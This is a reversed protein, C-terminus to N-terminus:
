FDLSFSFGFTVSALKNGCMVFDVSEDGLANWPTRKHTGASVTVYSSCVVAFLAMFNDMRANLISVLALRLHNPSTGNLALCPTVLNQALTTLAIFDKWWQQCLFSFGAPTLLDMANQKGSRPNGLNIDFSATPVGNGRMVTSVWAEGCFFELFGYSQALPPM